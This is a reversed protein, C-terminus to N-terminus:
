ATPKPLGTAPFKKKVPGESEVPVVLPLPEAGAGVVLSVPEDEDPALATSFSTGTPPMQVTKMPAM